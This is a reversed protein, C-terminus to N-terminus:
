YRLQMLWVAVLAPRDSGEVRLEVHWHCRVEDKRVDEVRDLRFSSVLASGSPVPATFRVKDFGYNLALKRGPFEFLRLYLGSLLSLILFGHAVTVGFPSEAASRIPDIHIWQPDHTVVAFADISAQDVM